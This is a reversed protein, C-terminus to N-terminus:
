DSLFNFKGHLFNHFHVGDPFLERTPQTKWGMRHHEPGHPPNEPARLPAHSMVEEWAVILVTGPLVGNPCSWTGPSVQNLREVWGGTIYVDKVTVQDRLENLVIM